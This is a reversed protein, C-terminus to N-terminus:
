VRYPVLTSVVCLSEGENWRGSAGMSVGAGLSQDEDEMRWGDKEGTQRGDGKTRRRRERTEHSVTRRVAYTYAYVCWPHFTCKLDGALVDGVHQPPPPALKVLVILIALIWLGIVHLMMRSPKSARFPLNGVDDGNGQESHPQSAPHVPSSQAMRSGALGGVRNPVALRRDSTRQATWSRSDQDMMEATPQRSDATRDNAQIDAGLASQHRRCGSCVALWDWGAVMDTRSNATSTCPMRNGRVQGGM